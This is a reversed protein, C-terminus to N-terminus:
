GRYDENAPLMVTKTWEAVNAYARFRPLPTKEAQSSLTLHVQFIRSDEAEFLVDDSAGSHGFPLLQLGYLRHGRALKSKLELLFADAQGPLFDCWPELFEIGSQAVHWM